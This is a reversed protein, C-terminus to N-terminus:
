IKNVFIDNSCHLNQPQLVNDVNELQLSAHIFVRLIYQGVPTDLGWPLVFDIKGTVPHVIMLIM